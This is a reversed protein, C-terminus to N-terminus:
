WWSFAGAHLYLKWTSYVVVFSCALCGALLIGRAIRPYKGWIIQCAVVIGATLAFKYIVLGKLGYYRLVYAPLLNVEYGWWPGQWRFYIASIILDLLGLLVFGVSEAKMVLPRHLLDKYRQPGVPTPEGM